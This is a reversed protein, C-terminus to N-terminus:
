KIKEPSQRMQPALAYTKEKCVAVAFQTKYNIHTCKCFLRKLGAWYTTCRTFKKLQLNFLKMLKYSDPAM